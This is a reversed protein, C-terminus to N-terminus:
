LRFPNAFLERLKDAQAREAAAGAADDSALTARAAAMHACAGKAAEAADQLAAHAAAGAAEANAWLAPDDQAAEMGAEEALALASALEDETENGAAFGEAVEVAHRSREDLILNWVQRACWCAFLRAKGDDWAPSAKLADVMSYPDSSDAWAEADMTMVTACCRQGLRRDFHGRRFVQSKARFFLRVRFTDAMTFHIIVSPATQFLEGHKETVIAYAQKWLTEGLTLEDPGDRRPLALAEVLSFEVTVNTGDLNTVKYLRM